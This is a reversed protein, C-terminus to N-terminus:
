RERVSVSSLLLGQESPRQLRSRAAGEFTRIHRTATSSTVAPRGVRSTAPSGAPPGGSRSVCEARVPPGPIPVPRGIETPWDPRFREVFDTFSTRLYRSDAPKLRIQRRSDAWWIEFDTVTGEEPWDESREPLMIFDVFGGVGMGIDVFIGIAGPRPVRVVTGEFVQGFRLGRRIRVWDADTVM